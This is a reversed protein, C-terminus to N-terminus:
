GGAVPPEVVEEGPMAEIVGLLTTAPAAACVRLIVPLPKMLELTTFKLPLGSVVVKTLEVPSVAARGADAMEASPVTFIVTDL